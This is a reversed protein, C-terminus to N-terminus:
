VEEVFRDSQRRFFRYGAPLLLAAALTVGLIALWDPSHGTFLISRYAALLPVMPNLSYLSRIQSPVQSITYFIPLLYNTLQLLVGVTHQTDRFTVNLAALPYALSATLGFQIVFLLPLLSLYRTLAVGDAILFFLLIPFALSLHVLGTAITVLPLIGVPFGSQRILPRNNVIAGTAQILSSQTWSWILLGSFAYSSYHPIDVKLVIRFLFSFVALQLLPNILTWAIGLLSRKYLLKLDRSVLVILLDLAWASQRRHHQLRGITRAM